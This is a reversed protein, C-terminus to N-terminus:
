KNKNQEEVCSWSGFSFEGGKWASTIDDNRAGLDLDRLHVCGAIYMNALSFIGCTNESLGGYSVNKKISQWYQEEVSKGCIVFM